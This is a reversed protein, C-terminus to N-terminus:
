AHTRLNVGTDGYRTIVYEGGEVAETIEGISRRCFEPFLRHAQICFKDAEGGTM